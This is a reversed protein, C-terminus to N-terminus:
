SLADDQSLLYFAQSTTCSRLHAAITTTTVKIITTTITGAMYDVDSYIFRRLAVGRLAIMHLMLSDTEPFRIVGGLFCFSHLTNM